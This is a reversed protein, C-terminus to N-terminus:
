RRVYVEYIYGLQKQEGPKLVITWTLEMIGNMRRLGRALKEIKAEPKSSKVEGSLRKAIELTITKQQFNTVSLKGEVTVLDYRHGYLQAVDRKRETELELQEAKVSIAQTIKLTAEGEVPTYNLTDQGLILGEKVTEAPATTWPVQTTNELRLCHWVEEDPERQQERRQSYSYREEENVYDPIKWQYIHKYPVPETFLPFYGVDDKALRVKEVPYFFLDEAVKGTRAAGYAPMLPERRRREYLGVSQAMVNSMVGLRGRESEGKVLAELFKALDEKLALPSVIDAFQLHPFGTVLQITVDDLDCVENIVAAKASIVAKDGDTVDVIYSPAWTIGKALCSVMLKEDGAPKTLKINLQMSKSKRKLTKEVKGELFEIRNIYQPDIAVEGADTEIVILRSQMSDGGRYNTTSEVVGPAYPSPRPRERDEAFYKIMGEVVPEEKGSLYLKIKRGINVRLMEPITIAEVLEQSDIEKAVLSELKVKPRYSVWFTGHSAAAPPIICFSDKKKPVTVESIFFGLGNKFLAVQQLKLEAQTTAMEAKTFVPHVFLASNLVVTLILLNKIREM